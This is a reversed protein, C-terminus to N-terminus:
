VRFDRAWDSLMISLPQMNKKLPSFSRSLCFAKSNNANSNPVVYCCLHFLLWNKHTVSYHSKRNVEVFLHWTVILLVHGLLSWDQPSWPLNDCDATYHLFCTGSFSLSSIAPSKLALTPQLCSFQDPTTPNWQSPFHLEFPSYSSANQMSCLEFMNLGHSHVRPGLVVYYCFLFILTVHQVGSNYFTCYTRSIM